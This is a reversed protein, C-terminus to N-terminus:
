LRDLLLEKAESPSLQNLVNRLLWVRNLEEKAFLCTDEM